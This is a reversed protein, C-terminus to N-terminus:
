NSEDPDGALSWGQKQVQELVADPSKIDDGQQNTIKLGTDIGEIPQTVEHSWKYEVRGSLNITRYWVNNAQSDASQMIPTYSFTQVDFGRLEFLDKKFRLLVLMAVQFLYVLEVPDASVCTLTYNERCYVSRRTNGVTGYASTITAGTLNPDSGPAIMLTKDDLVLEIKYKQNNVNDVLYQNSYVNKFSVSDPATVVGTIKDYSDPTFPGVINQPTVQAGRLDKPDTMITDNGDGLALKQQPEESGQGIGVSICPYKAQEPPRHDLVINIENRAMFARFRDAEAQGYTDKLIQDELLDANISDIVYLNQKLRKIGEKLSSTIVMDATFFGAM